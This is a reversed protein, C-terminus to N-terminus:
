KIEINRKLWSYEPYLKSNIDTERFLLLQPCIMGQVQPLMWLDTGEYRVEQLEQQQPFRIIDELKCSFVEKWKGWVM